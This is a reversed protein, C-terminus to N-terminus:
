TGTYDILVWLVVVIDRTTPLYAGNTVYEVGVLDGAAFADTGPAQTAYANQPSASTLSHATWVNSGNVTARLALTGATLVGDIRYSMGVISGAWPMVAYVPAGADALALDGTTSAPINIQVYTLPTLQGSFLRSPSLGNGNMHMLYGTTSDQWINGGASSGAPSAASGVTIVGRLQVYTGGPDITIDGTDQAIYAPVYTAPDAVDPLRVYGLGRDRRIDTIDVTGTAGVAAANRKVGTRVRLYRAASPNSTDSAFDPTRRTTGAPITQGSTQEAPMGTITGDTTLYQLNQFVFFTGTNSIGGIFLSRVADSVWQGRSGGIDIIQEVFAEDAAAGAAFTFRLNSGSPSSPDRVQKLTINTNSSQIFRWGPMFNSGSTSSSVDINLTPDPPGLRFNGNFVGFNVIDSLAALLGPADAGAQNHTPETSLVLSQGEADGVTLTAGDWDFDDM